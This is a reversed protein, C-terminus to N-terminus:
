CIKILFVFNIKRPPPSPQQRQQQQAVSCQVATWMCNEEEGERHVIKAESTGKTQTEVTSETRQSVRREKKCHSLARPAFIINRVSEQWHKFIYNTSRGKQYRPRKMHAHTHRRVYTHRHTHTDTKYATQAHTRTEKSAQKSHTQTRTSAKNKDQCKRGKKQMLCVGFSLSNYQFLLTIFILCLLLCRRRRRLRRCRRRRLSGSGPFCM